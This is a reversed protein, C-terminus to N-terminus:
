NEKMTGNHINGMAIAQPLVNMRFGESLTGRVATRMTSNACSAPMSRAHQVQHVAGFVCHVLQKGIWADLGNRKNSWRPPLICKDSRRSCRFTHLCQAAGLVMGHDQRVGVQFRGHSCDHTRAKSACALRQKAVLTTTATPSAPSGRTFFQDIGGIMQGHARSALWDCIPGTM